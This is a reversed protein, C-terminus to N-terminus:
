ETWEQKVGTATARTKLRHSLRTEGRCPVISNLYSASRQRSGTGHQNNETRVLVDALTRQKEASTKGNELQK